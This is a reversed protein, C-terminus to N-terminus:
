EGWQWCNLKLGTGQVALAAAFGHALKLDQIYWRSGANSDEETTVLRTSEGPGMSVDFKDLRRSLGDGIAKMLAEKRTWLNFFAERKKRDPLARLSLNDKVSFFREAIQEMESIEHIQEIDM